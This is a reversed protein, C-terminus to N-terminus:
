AAVKLRREGGTPEVNIHLTALGRALKSSVVNSIRELAVSLDGGEMQQVDITIHLDFLVPRQKHARSAKYDLLTGGVPGALNLLSHGGCVPCADGRGTTVFECDVCLVASQLAVCEANKQNDSGGSM